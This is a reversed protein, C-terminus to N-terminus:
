STRLFQLIGARPSTGDPFADPSHTGHGYPSLRDATNGTWLFQDFSKPSQVGALNLLGFVLLNQVASHTIGDTSELFCFRWHDRIPFLGFGAKRRIGKGADTAEGGIANPYREGVTV